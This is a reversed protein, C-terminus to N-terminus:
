HTVETDSPAPSATSATIVEFDEPGILWIGDHEYVENESFDAWFSGPEGGSEQLVGTDGPRYFVISDSILSTMENIVVIRDGKKPKIM